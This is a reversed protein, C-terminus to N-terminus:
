RCDPGKAIGARVAGLGLAAMIALVGEMIGAGEVGALASAIIGLGTLVGAIMVLYSKKIGFM